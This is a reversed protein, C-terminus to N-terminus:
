TMGVHPSLAIEADGNKTTKGFGWQHYVSVSESVAITMSNNNNTTGHPWYRVIINEEYHGKLPLMKSFMKPVAILKNKDSEYSEAIQLKIRRHGDNPLSMHISKFSWPLAQPLKVKVTTDIPLYLEDTKLQQPLTHLTVYATITMAAVLLLLLM